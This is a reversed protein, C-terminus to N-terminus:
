NFFQNWAETQDRGIMKNFGSFWTEPHFESLQEM